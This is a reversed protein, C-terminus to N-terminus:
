PEPESDPHHTTHMWADVGRPKTGKVPGRTHGQLVSRIILRQSLLAVPRCGTGPARRSQEWSGVGSAWPRGARVHLPQPGQGRGAYEPGELCPPLCGGLSRGGVPPSCSSTRFTSVRGLRTCWKCPCPWAVLSPLQERGESDSSEHSLAQSGLLCGPSSCRRNM